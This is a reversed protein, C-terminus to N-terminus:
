DRYVGDARAATLVGDSTETFVMLEPLLLYVMVLRQLCWWSQAATLVGDSTETFVMLEPLLLYVM